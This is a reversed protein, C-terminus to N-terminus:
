LVPRVDLPTIAAGEFWGKKTAGAAYSLWEGKTRDATRKAPQISVHGTRSIVKTLM